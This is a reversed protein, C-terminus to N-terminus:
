HEEVERAELVPIYMRTRDSTLDGFRLPREAPPVQPIIVEEGQVGRVSERTGPTSWYYGLTFFVSEYMSVATERHGTQTKPSGRYQRYEKVPLPLRVEEAFHAGARVPTVFPAVPANVLVDSPIDALKKNLWVTKTEPILHVYVVDAGFEWKPTSRFLRNLLYIDRTSRNTVEYALLLEKESLTFRASFDLHENVEPKGNDETECATQSGGPSLSMMFILALRQAMTSKM